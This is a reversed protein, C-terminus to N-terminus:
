LQYILLSIDSLQVIAKFFISFIAEETRQALFSIGQFAINDPLLFGAPLLRSAIIL